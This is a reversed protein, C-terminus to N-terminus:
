KEFIINEITSESHKKEIVIIRGIGSIFNARCVALSSDSFSRDYHWSSPIARDFGKYWVQYETYSISVNKMEM